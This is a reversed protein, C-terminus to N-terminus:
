HTIGDRRVVKLFTLLLVKMDFALSQRRLYYLDLEV